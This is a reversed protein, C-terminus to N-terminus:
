QRVGIIVVTALSTEVIAAMPAAGVLSVAGDPCLEAALLLYRSQFHQGHGVEVTKWEEQIGTGNCSECTHEQGGSLFGFIRGAGDCKKCEYEHCGYTFEGEGDCDDCEISKTKGTGQCAPCPKQSQIIASLNIGAMPGVDLRSKTIMRAITDQIVPPTDPVEDPVQLGLAPMSDVHVRVAIYGNSAYVFEGIRHPTRLYERWDNQNSCFKHLITSV